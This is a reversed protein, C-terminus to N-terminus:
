YYYNNGGIRKYFERSSSWHQGLSASRFYMVGAPITRDGGNFVAEAARLAASSPKLDGFSSDKVVSFQGSRYVEREVSGGFRKSNCRNYLVSAMAFFSEESQSKGEAYILKAALYIEDESYDGEGGKEIEPEPAAEPEEEEPKPTPKPTSKAKPKPTPTPTPIAGVGVFEKLIFGEIEDTKIQYWEDTKAKITVITHYDVEGKKDYETGPGKRVNIDHGKIYGKTDEINKLDYEPTPEPTPKQTASPTPSVSAAPSPVVTPTTGKTPTPHAALLKPMSSVTASPIELVDGANEMNEQISAVSEVDAACGFLFLQLCVLVALIWRTRM